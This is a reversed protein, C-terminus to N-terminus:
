NCGMAKVVRQTGRGDVLKQGAVSQRVLVEPSNVMQMIKKVMIEASVTSAPGLYEIYGDAGLAKSAPVENAGTSVVITPLGLYLREWMTSGGAGICLDARAMLDALHPLATYCQTRGRSKCRKRIEGAHPHNVGIVVDLFISTLNQQCLAELALGTLNQPDTGGLFILMRKVTGDYKRLSEKVMAYEQQLLAYRPGLLVSATESIKNTYRDIGNRSYNQDLLLDCDHSRNAIDDITMIKKVHLRLHEEWTKGLSYHDVIMWDPEDNEMANITEKADEIESVGLWDKYDDVNQFSKNNDYKGLEPLPLESVRFGKNLVMHKLDGIQRRSIFSVSVGNEKLAEALTLSRMIHGSGIKVSADARFVVRM